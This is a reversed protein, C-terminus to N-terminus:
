VSFNVFLSGGDGDHAAESMKVFVHTLLLCLGESVVAAEGFDSRVIISFAGSFAPNMVSSVKKLRDLGHTVAPSATSNEGSLM